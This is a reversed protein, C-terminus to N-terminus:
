IAVQIREKYLRNVVEKRRKCSYKHTSYNIASTSSMKVKNRSGGDNNSDDDLCRKGTFSSTKTIAVGIDRRYQREWKRVQQQLTQQLRELVIFHGYQFITKDNDNNNKRDNNSNENNDLPSTISSSYSCSSCVGCLRIIHPHDLFSLIRTGAILFAVSRVLLETSEIDVIDKRVIKIAYKNKTTFEIKTMKRKIRGESCCQQHRRTLLLSLARWSPLFSKTTTTAIIKPHQKEEPGKLTTATTMTSQKQAKQQYHRDDYDTSDALIVSGRRLKYVSFFSGKGLLTGKMLKKSDYRPFTDILNPLKSDKFMRDIYKRIREQEKEKLM